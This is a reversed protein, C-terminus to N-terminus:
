HAMFFRQIKYTALSYWVMVRLTPRIFWQLVRSSGHTHVTNWLSPFVHLKTVSCGFYSGVKHTFHATSVSLFQLSFASLHLFCLVWTASRAFRKTNTEQCGVCMSSRVPQQVGTEPTSGTAFQHTTDTDPCLNVTPSELGWDMAIVAISLQFDALQGIRLDTLWGVKVMRIMDWTLNRGVLYVM